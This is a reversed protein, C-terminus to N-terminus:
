KQEGLAALRDQLRRTHRAGIVADERDLAESYLRLAALRDDELGSLEYRTDHAVALNLGVDYLMNSDKQEMLVKRAETLLDIAKDVYEASREGTALACLAPAANRATSVWERVNSSRQRHKLSERHADVANRLAQWNGTLVFHKYYMTGLNDMVLAYNAPSDQETWVELASGFHGIAKRFKSVDSDRDAIEAYCIALRNNVLAWENPNDERRTAKAERYWHKLQVDASSSDRIMKVIASNSAVNGLEALMDFRGFDRLNEVAFTFESTDGQFSARVATAYCVVEHGERTDDVSLRQAALELFGEQASDAQEIWFADGSRQYCEMCTGIICSKLEVWEGYEEQRESSTAARQYWSLGEVLQEFDGSIRSQFVLSHGIAAEARYGRRPFWGQGHSALFIERANELKGVDQESDGQGLLLHARNIQSIRTPTEEVLQQEVQELKETLMQSQDVSHRRRDNGVADNEIALMMGIEIIANLDDIGELYGDEGNSDSLLIEGVVGRNRCLVTVKASHGSPRVRGSILVDYRYRNLIKLGRKYTLTENSAYDADVTSHWLDPRKRRKRLIDVIEFKWRGAEDGSLNAVLIMVTHPQKGLRRVARRWAVHSLRWVDRIIGLIGAIAGAAQLAEFAM